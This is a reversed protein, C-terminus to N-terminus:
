KKFMLQLFEEYEIGENPDREAENIMENIEEETADVQLVPLVNKLDDHTIRGNGDSDFIKFAEIM